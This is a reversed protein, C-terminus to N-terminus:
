EILAGTVGTGSSFAFTSRQLSDSITAVSPWDGLARDSMYDRHPRYGRPTKASAIVNIVPPAWEEIPSTRVLVTTRCGLFAALHMPGSDNTIVYEAAKLHTILESGMARTVSANDIGPPLPDNPGAILAVEWGHKRLQARLPLIEPFQKSRWQAGIHIVIKGDTPASAQLRRYTQEIQTFPVGTLAAWSRYRNKASLFGLAYPVNVLASKRGFFRIWGNMRIRAKPFARRAAAYDRADGRISLVLDFDERIPVTRQGQSDFPNSRNRTTYPLDIAILELKSRDPLADRLIAHWQPSCALSAPDRLERLTSAAIIVDGLSWPEFLVLRGPQGKTM